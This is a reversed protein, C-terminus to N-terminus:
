AHAECYHKFAAALDKLAVEYEKRHKTLLEGSLRNQEYYFIDFRVGASVESLGFDVFNRFTDGEKPYLYGAMHRYPVVKLTEAYFYPIPEGYMHLSPKHILVVEGESRHKGSILTVTADVFTPNWLEYELLLKWAKELTSNVFSEAYYVSAAWGLHTQRDSEKM